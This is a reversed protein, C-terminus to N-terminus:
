YIQLQFTKLHYRLYKSSWRDIYIYINKKPKEAIAENDLIEFTQLNEILILYM